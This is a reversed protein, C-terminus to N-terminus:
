KWVPVDHPRFKLKKYPDYDDIPPVFFSIIPLKEKDEPDCAPLHEQLYPKKWLEACDIIFSFVLNKTHSTFNEYIELGKKCLECKLDSRILM